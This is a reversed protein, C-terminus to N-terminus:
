PACVGREDPAELLAAGPSRVGGRADMLALRVAAWGDRDEFRVRLRNTGAPFAVTNRRVGTESDGTDLVTQQNVSLQAQGRAALLVDYRAPKELRMCSEFVASFGDAPLSELPAGMGWDLSLIAPRSRGALKGFDRDAYFRALWPGAPPQAAAGVGDTALAGAVREAVWQQGFATLYGKTDFLAARQVPPLSNADDQLDVFDLNAAELNNGFFRRLASDDALHGWKPLYVVVPKTENEGARSAFEQLIKDLVVAVKLPAPTPQPEAVSAVGITSLLHSRAFLARNTTFWPWIYSRAPVPVGTIMLGSEGKALRPKDFGQFDDRVLRELSAPELTLIAVDAKDHVKDRYLLLSQDPSYGPQSRNLAVLGSDLRLRYCWTGQDAVGVGFTQSGGLCILRQGAPPAEKRATRFGEADTTLPLWTGFADREDLNADARWGLNGDHGSLRIAVPPPRADSAVVRGLDWFSFLGELALALLLLAALVYLPWLYRIRRGRRPVGAEVM